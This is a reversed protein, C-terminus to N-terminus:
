LNLSFEANIKDYIESPVMTKFARNFQHKKMATKLCDPNKCLYAGHGPAKGTLDLKIEGTPTRVIRIM